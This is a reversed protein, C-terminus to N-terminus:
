KTQKLYIYFHRSDGMEKFKKKNNKTFFESASYTFGMQGLHMEPM